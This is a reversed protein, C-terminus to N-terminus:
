WSKGELYRKNRYPRGGGKGVNRGAFTPLQMNCNGCVLRLNEPRNDSPKGNVHDLVLPVEKGRWEELGCVECRQGRIEVLYGKITRANGTLEGSIQYQEIRLQKRHLIACESGCYKPNDTEKGCFVCPKRAYKGHKLNGSSDRLSNNYSGACSHSCFKNNRREYPLIKECNQCITPCAEYKALRKKKAEENAALAKELRAEQLPSLDKRM